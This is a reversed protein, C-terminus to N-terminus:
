DLAAVIGLRTEGVGELQCGATLRRLVLKLYQEIHVLLLKRSILGILFSRRLQKRNAAKLSALADIRRFERRASSNGVHQEVEVLRNGLVLRDHVRNSFFLQKYRAPM